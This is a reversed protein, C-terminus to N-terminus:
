KFVRYIHRIKKRWSEDISHETVSVCSYSHILSLEGNLEAIIGVHSPAKDKSWSMTVVDGKKLEFVESGFHERMERDLGDNWPDRSYDLRDRMQFGVAALSVVVLGICDVGFRNRGRHRWKCGKYTRAEKIFSDILYEHAM